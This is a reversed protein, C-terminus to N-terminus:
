GPGMTAPTAGLDVGNQSLYERSREFADALEPNAQTAARITETPSQKGLRHSINAM